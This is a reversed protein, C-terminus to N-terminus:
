KIGMKFGLEQAIDSAEMKKKVSAWQKMKLITDFYTLDCIASKTMDVYKSYGSVVKAGSTNLFNELGNGIMTRCSSFHVIKDQFFIGNGIKALDAISVMQEDKPEGELKVAGKEGHISFFIAYDEFQKVGFQKFYYKLQDKTVINRHICDLGPYYAELFMLLPETNLANKSRVNWETEFCIIGKIM